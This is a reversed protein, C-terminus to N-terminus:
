KENWLKELLPSLRNGDTQLNKLKEVQENMSDKLMSNEAVLLEAQARMKERLELKAQLLEVQKHLALELVIQKSSVAEEQTRSIVLHLGRATAFTHIESLAREIEAHTALPKAHSLNLITYSPHSDFFRFLSEKLLVLDQTDLTETVDFAHVQDELQFLLKMRNVTKWLFGGDSLTLFKDAINAWEEFM